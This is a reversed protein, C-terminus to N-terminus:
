VDRFYIIHFDEYKVTKNLAKQRHVVCLGYIGKDSTVFSDVVWGNDVEGNSRLINCNEFEDSSLMIAENYNKYFHSLGVKTKNICYDNKCTVFLFSPYTSRTNIVFTKDDSEINCVMCLNMCIMTARPYLTNHDTNEELYWPNDPIFAM